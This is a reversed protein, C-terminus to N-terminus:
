KQPKGLDDLDDLSGIFDAFAGLKAPDVPEPMQEVRRVRGGRSEETREPQPIYGARSMVGEEAYIPVQVRLALAIADSPRADIEIHRGQMDLILRAHFTEDILDTVVVQTMRAGLQQIVAKLLDPALPRAIPAKQLAVAICLAESEGIHMPLYRERERERLMLVREKTTLSGRVSEVILEIM